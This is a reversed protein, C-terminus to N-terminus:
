LGKSDDNVLPTELAAIMRRVFESWADHQRLEKLAVQWCGGLVRQPFHGKM